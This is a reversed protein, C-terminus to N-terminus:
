KNTDSTSDEESAERPKPAEATGVDSPPEDTSKQNHKRWYRRGFHIVLWLSLGGILLASIEVPIYQVIYDTWPVTEPDSDVSAWVEMGIVVGTLGLFAVSWWARKTM